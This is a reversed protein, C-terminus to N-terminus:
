ARLDERHLEWDQMAEVAVVLQVLETRSLQAHAEHLLRPLLLSENPRSQALLETLALVVREKGNFIDSM